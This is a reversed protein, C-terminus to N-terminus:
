PCIKSIISDSSIAEIALWFQPRRIRCPEDGLSKTKREIAGGVFSREDGLSKPATDDTGGAFTHQDGVSKDADKAM